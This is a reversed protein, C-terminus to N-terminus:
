RRRSKKWAGSVKEEAPQSKRDRFRVLTQKSFPDAVLNPESVMASLNPERKSTLWRAPTDTPKRLVKNRDWLCFHYVGDLLVSRSGGPFEVVRLPKCPYASM